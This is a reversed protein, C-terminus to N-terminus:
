PHSVTITYTQPATFAGVDYVIICYKGSVIAGSIAPINVQAFNNQQLIGLSSVCTGDSPAQAWIVGIFTNSVPSMSTVKASIEGTKSATFPHGMNGGVQLTGTFTDVTNKSPDTIGGCSGAILSAAALAAVATLRM